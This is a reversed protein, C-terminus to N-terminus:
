DQKKGMKKKEGKKAKAKARLEHKKVEVLLMSAERIIAILMCGSVLFLPASLMLSVFVGRSDFYNQTAFSEWENAGYDNLREASRVTLFIVGMVCMRSGLGGRKTSLIAAMIVILHFCILCLILPEGWRIAAKFAQINEWTSTPAM